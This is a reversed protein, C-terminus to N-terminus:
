MDGLECLYEEFCLGYHRPVNMKECYAICRSAFSTAKEVCKCIDLGNLYAGAVVASIVDGTGCRDKGIRNVIITQYSDDDKQYVFNMIHDDDISLGTVVIYRPGLLSLERCMDHLTEFLPVDHSYEYGLLATLETFNPTVIDGYCILDRMRKAMDTTVTDYLIGHDGMVPDVLVFTDRKKFHEIFDIVINVQQVSGLYGTAIGDFELDLDKYVQIYDNMRDTYDDIYYKPFELHTSLIATPIAVAQIKMASVIPAIVATSCRGFGTLDNIIAIRKQREM